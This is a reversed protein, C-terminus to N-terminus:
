FLMACTLVRHLTARFVGSLMAYFFNRNLTKKICKPCCQVTLFGICHQGLPELCCQMFFIRHLKASISKTRCTFVRDWTTWSAGSLNADSFIRHLTRKISEPCCQVTLFGICYQGLPELCCQMFFIRRLNAEISKSCCLAPWFEICHQGFSELCCQM